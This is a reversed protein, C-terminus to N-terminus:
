IKLHNCAFIQSRTVQTSKSVALGYRLDIVSAAIPAFHSPRFGLFQGFTSLSLKRGDDNRVRSVNRASWWFSALAEFESILSDAVCAAMSATARLEYPRNIAKRAARDPSTAPASSARPSAKTVANSRQGRSPIGWLGSAHSSCTARLRLM